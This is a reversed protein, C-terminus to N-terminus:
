LLSSLFYHAWPSHKDRYNPVAHNVRALYEWVKQIDSDLSPPESIFAVEPLRNEGLEERYKKLRSQLDESLDFLWRFHNNMGTAEGSWVQNMSM